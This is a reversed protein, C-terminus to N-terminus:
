LMFEIITGGDNTLVTISNYGAGLCGQGGPQPQFMDILPPFRMLDSSTIFGSSQNYVSASHQVASLVVRYVSLPPPPPLGNVHGSM